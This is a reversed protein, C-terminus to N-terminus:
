WGAPLDRTFGPVAQLEKLYADISATTGPNTCAIEARFNDDQAAVYMESLKGNERLDFALYSATPAPANYSVRQENSLTRFGVADIYRERDGRITVQGTLVSANSVSDVISHLLLGQVRNQAEPLLMIKFQSQTGVIANSTIRRLRPLFFPMLRSNPDYVQTPTVTMSTVTLGTGSILAAQADAAFTVLIQTPFRADREVFATEGPDAGYISAFDIVYQGRLTYTAATAASLADINASQRQALSTYFALARGTCEFRVQGNEVIQVLDICRSLGEANVTGGSAGAIVAILEVDFAIRHTKMGRLIEVPAAKGGATPRSIPTLATKRINLM